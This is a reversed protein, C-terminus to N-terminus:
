VPERIADCVVTSETGDGVFPFVVAPASSFVCAPALGELRVALLFSFACGSEADPLALV